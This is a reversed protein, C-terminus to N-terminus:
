VTVEVAKIIVSRDASILTDGSKNLRLQQIYPILWELRKIREAGRIDSRVTDVIKSEYVRVSLADSVVVYRDDSYEAEAIEEIDELNDSNCLIREVLRFTIIQVKKLFNRVARVAMFIWPNASAIKRLKEAEMENEVMMGMGEVEYLVGEIEEIITVVKKNLM